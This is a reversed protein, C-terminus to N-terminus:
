RSASTMGGTNAKPENTSPCTREQRHMYDLLDIPKFRRRKGVLVYRLRGAEIEADLTDRAIGLARLAESEQILLRGHAIERLREQPDLSPVLGIITLETPNEMAVRTRPSSPNGCLNGIHFSRPLLTDGWWHYTASRM